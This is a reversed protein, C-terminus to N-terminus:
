GERRDDVGVEPDRDINTGTPDLGLGLLSRLPARPV